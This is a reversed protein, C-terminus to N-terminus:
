ATGPALKRKDEAKQLFRARQVITREHMGEGIIEVTDFAQVRFLLRRGEVQVLEARATVTLGIPTAALHCIELRTGVTVADESLFPKVCTLATNEMLAVMHPTSFVPVERSVVNAETVEVSQELFLGVKLETEMM